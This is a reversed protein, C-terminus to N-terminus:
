WIVPIEVWRTYFQDYLVSLPYISLDREFYLKEIGSSGGTLLLNQDEIWAVHSLTADLIPIVLEAKQALLISPVLLIFVQFIKKM